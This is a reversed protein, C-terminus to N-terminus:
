AAFSFSFAPLTERSVKKKWTKNLLFQCVDRYSNLAYLVITQNVYIIYNNGYFTWSVNM